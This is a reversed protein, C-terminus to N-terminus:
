SSSGLRSSRPWCQRLPVRSLYRSGLSWELRSHGVLWSPGMGGLIGLVGGVVIGVGFERRLYTGYEVERLAFARIAIAESQTGVSDAIYAIVPPFFALAITERMTGEFQSSIVSLFLGAVLGFLLWPIRSRVADRIRESAIDSIREGTHRVGARRLVDALHEQHMTDIIAQATVAGLFHGESTVVPIETRDTEIALLVADERDADPRLVARVPEMVAGVSPADMSQLLDTSDLYGVLTQADGAGECVYITATSDWTEGRLQARVASPTAEPQCTPVVMSTIAGITTEDTTLSMHTTLCAPRIIASV